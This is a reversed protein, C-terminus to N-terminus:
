VVAQDGHPWSWPRWHFAADDGFVCGKRCCVQAAASINYVDIFVFSVFTHTTLPFCSCSCFCCGCRCFLLLLLFLCVVSTSGVTLLWVRVQDLAELCLPNAISHYNELRIQLADQERRLAHDTLGQERNSRGWLMLTTAVVPHRSGMASKQIKFCRECMENAETYRSNEVYFKALAYEAPKKYMPLNKKWLGNDVTSPVGADQLDEANLKPLLSRLSGISKRTAHLAAALSKRPIAKEEEGSPARRSKFYQIRDQKFNNFMKFLRLQETRPPLSRSKKHSVGHNDIRARLLAKRQDSRTLKITMGSSVVRNGINGKRDVGYKAQVLDM